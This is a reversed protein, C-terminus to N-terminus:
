TTFFGQMTLLAIVTGAERHWIFIQNVYIFIREQFDGGHGRVDDSRARVDGSLRTRTGSDTMGQALQAAAAAGGLSM